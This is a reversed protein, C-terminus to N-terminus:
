MRYNGVEEDLKLMKGEKTKFMNTITIQSVQASVGIDSSGM